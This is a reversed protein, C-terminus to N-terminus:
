AEKVRFKEAAHGPPVRAKERLRFDVERLLGARNPRRAGRSWEVIAAVVDGCATCLDPEGRVWGCPPNCASLETCGSCGCVRCRTFGNYDRHVVHDEPSHQKRRRPM